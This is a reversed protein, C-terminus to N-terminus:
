WVPPVGQNMTMSGSPFTAPLPKLTFADASISSISRAHNVPTLFAANRTRHRCCSEPAPPLSFLACGHVFDLTGIRDVAPRAVQAHIPSAPSESTAV